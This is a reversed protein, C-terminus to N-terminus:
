HSIERERDRERQRERQRETEREEEGGDGVWRGQFLGTKEEGAWTYFTISFLTKCVVSDSFAEFYLSPQL